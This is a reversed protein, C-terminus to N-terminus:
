PGGDECLPHFSWAQLFPGALFLSWCDGELLEIRHRDEALILNVDGPRYLRESKIGNPLCRTERYGGVLILSASWAWPHSHVADDPDSAHFHHLYIASSGIRTTPNWGAAYYRTLYPQGQPSIVRKPLVRALRECWVRAAVPDLMM